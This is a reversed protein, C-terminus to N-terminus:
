KEDKIITDTMYCALLNEQLVLMEGQVAKGREIHEEQHDYGDLHLIGHILLRKLEEDRSVGYESANYALMDISIIIDGAVYWTRGEDDTYEDGQEFSLVDTAGDISRYQKNLDAIFADNCFMISLEWNIIGLDELVSQVFPEVESIWPVSECSSEMDIVLKNCM